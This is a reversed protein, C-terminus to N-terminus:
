RAPTKSRSITGTSTFSRWIVWSSPGRGEEVRAADAGLDPAVATIRGGDVAIDAHTVDEVGPRVVRVDRIILDHSM